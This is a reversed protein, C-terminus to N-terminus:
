IIQLLTDYLQGVVTLMRAGASYAQQYMMMNSLEEDMSVGSNDSLRTQAETLRDDQTTQNTKADSTRTALDQYFAAAYNVLTTVQAGLAGAKTFSQQSTALNQLALLGSSDGAGVVQNDVTTVSVNNVTTTDFNAKAFALLSPDNLIASNVTFGVAQQAVSNSGLGFLQSLSMGTTDRSTTDATVDVKDASYASDMALSISGDSNLTYAGYGNLATNLDDIFDQFTDGAQVTVDATKVIQGDSGKVALTLTGDAGTLDGAAFGTSLVSPAASHFLDNLGFFQSFGVGGRSSPATSDPDAVVIGQNGTTALKLQGNQFSALGSVKANIAGVLGGVTETFTDATGNDLQITGADFDIALTHQEVGDADTVIIDTKGSFNLNDSDMLGTDRGTLTQPPPYATNANHVQNFALSVGQAFSGLENQLDALTGDRMDILGKIAGGTLHSDLTQVNSPQGAPAGNPGPVYGIPQGTRPDIDTVTIPSYIGNQSSTYSLQAYTDGVLNLGDQTSVLVTGDSQPVTRVDIQKALASIASDRQDLYTTDTNGQAVATKILSNLGYIQKILSSTSTVATSIQSDIQSGLGTLASSMQSVSSALANMSSVVSDQSSSTTPSLASQGLATFINSLKTTLATGDGPSGLLAGIQDYTNSQADYQSASSTASLSEQTLFQDVVRQIDGISVGALQGGSALTQLDVQRRAYDPTNVNAINNSVVRLAATNTQLASLASSTIGNLGL